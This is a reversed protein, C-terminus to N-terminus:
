LKAKRIKVGEHADAMLERVQDYSFDDGHWCELIVAKKMRVTKKSGKIIKKLKKAFAIRNSGTIILAKM